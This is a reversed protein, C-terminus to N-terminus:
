LFFLTEDSKPAPSPTDGFGIIPFDGDDDDDDENDDENDDEDEDEDEDFGNYDDEGYYTWTWITSRM